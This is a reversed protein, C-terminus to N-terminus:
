TILRNDDLVTTTNFLIQSHNVYSRKSYMIQVHLDIRTVKFFYKVDLLKNKIKTHQTHWQIKSIYIYIYIYM